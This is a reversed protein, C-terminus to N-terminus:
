PAAGGDAPPEIRRNLWEVNDFKWYKGQRVFHMRILDSWPHLRVPRRLVDVELREDSVLNWNHLCHSSIM